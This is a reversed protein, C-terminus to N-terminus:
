KNYNLYNCNKCINKNLNKMVYGLMDIYNPYKKMLLSIKEWRFKEQKWSHSCLYLFADRSILPMFYRCYFDFWYLKNNEEIDERFSWKLKYNKIDNFKDEWNLKISGWFNHLNHIKYKVGLANWLEYFYKLENVSYNNILLELSFPLWEKKIRKIFWIINDFSKVWSLYDHNKKVVSYIWVSLNFKLGDKYLSKLISIHEDTVSVGKTSILIEFWTSSFKKSLYKLFDIINPHLFIDWIGSLDLFSINDINRYIYDIINYFDESKMIGKEKFDKNPCYFCKLGCYDTIELEIPYKM